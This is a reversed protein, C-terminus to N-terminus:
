INKDFSNLVPIIFETTGKEVLCITDDVYRKWFTIYKILNPVLSNELVIMFIDALVPGLPSGM